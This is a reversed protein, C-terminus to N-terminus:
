SQSVVYQRTVTWRHDGALTLVYYTEQACLGGCYLDMFVLATKGDGTFGARSLWAIGPSGPYGGDHMETWARDDDVKPVNQPGAQSAVQVRIRTHFRAANLRAAATNAHAFAELLEAPL